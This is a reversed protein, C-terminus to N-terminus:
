LKALAAAQHHAVMPDGVAFTRLEGFVRRVIIGAGEVPVVARAVGDADTRVPAPLRRGDLFLLGQTLRDICSMATFPDNVGPSLARLAIELFEDFLFGLDQDLSRDDGLSVLKALDEAVAAAASAPHVEAYPTGRVVFHGATPLLRVSEATHHFFYVLLALDVVTLTLAVGISLHPVVPALDLGADGSRVIRLVLLCYVFTAVFTGLVVQNARDKMFNVLLRPGFQNSAQILVVMTLSFV